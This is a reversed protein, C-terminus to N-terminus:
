IYNESLYWNLQEWIEVHRLDARPHKLTVLGGGSGDGRYKREMFIYLVEDVYDSNYNYGFMGSLSLNNIMIWFWRSTRNGANPDDMINEIRMSLAVLVELVNCPYIDLQEATELGYQYRLNLGDSVRNADMELIYTFQTEFLQRLLKDYKKRLAKDCVISCLWEFYDGVSIM